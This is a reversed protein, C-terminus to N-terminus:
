GMILTLERSLDVSEPEAIAEEDVMEPPFTLLASLFADAVGDQFREWREAAHIIYDAVASKHGYGAAASSFVTLRLIQRHEQWAEDSCELLLQRALEEFRGDGPIDKRAEIVRMMKEALEVALGDLAGGELDAVDIGFRGRVEEVFATFRGAYDESDLRPFNAEVVRTAVGLVLGGLDEAAYGKELLQQRLRYYTETHGDMVAAYDNIVGRRNAAEVEAEVQRHKIYGEVEKGELYVRGAGDRKGCGAAEIGKGGLLLLGPDDRALLHRTSGFRGQRGSRGQLQLAVRPFRSFEASIVHLGLGFEMVPLSGATEAGCGEAEGDSVILRYSGRIDRRNVRVRRCSLFARELLEREERTYCDVAVATCGGAIKELVVEVCRAVLRQELEPDLVIDTGRGAMNTAVTVAGFEGARRIIDAEEHSKVANLVRHEIGSAALGRSVVVSQEVTQVGVLVPQGLEKCNAVEAVLAAVKDEEGSYVRSPLDVRQLPNSTPVSVTEVSYRRRFEETAALATGTIGSLFEYRDAFGRVSVQALSEGSADLSVREKAELASQLGDQYSNDPKLRGTHPDLLVVTGDSVLYDVGKELLLHARLSQYVQNALNLKRAARRSIKGAEGQSAGEGVEVAFLEGLKSELFVMGKATLTVLRERDDVMCYLDGILEEDAEDNGYPYVAALGRRYAGPQQMALRRLEGNRPQALLGLCLLVGFSANDVPTEKLRLGYDEAVKEQEAALEAVVGNVRRWGHAVEPAPGAIILPTDGEDILAQDAEDVIAVQHRLPIQEGRDGALNNRLFDFGFERLTGYVVDCGYAARREAREMPELAAGVSLGLSRYVPALLRCDREALYDNATMVHVARGLAAQMVAAFAIAVTKGEGAQMEVVKGRLLHLGALLQEDTPRFCLLNDTDRERVARYFDAPLQVDPGLRGEGVARVQKIAEVIAKGGDDPGDWSGQGAAEFYPSFRYHGALEEFLRWTGLRRRITEDVVAFVLGVEDDRYSGTAGGEVKTRVGQISKRLELDSWEGLKLEGHVRRIEGVLRREGRERGLWPKRALLVAKRAVPLLLRGVGFARDGVPLDGLRNLVKANVSAM